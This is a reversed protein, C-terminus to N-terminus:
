LGPATPHARECTLKHFFDTRSFLITVTRSSSATVVVRKSSFCGAQNRSERIVPIEDLPAVVEIRKEDPHVKSEGLCVQSKVILVKPPMVLRRELGDVERGGCDPERVRVAGYGIRDRRVASTQEQRLTNREVAPKNWKWPCANDCMIPSNVARHVSSIARHPGEHAHWRKHELVLCQIKIPNRRIASGVRQLCENNSYRQLHGFANGQKNM